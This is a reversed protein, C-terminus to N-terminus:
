SEEQEHIHVKIRKISKQDVAEITFLFQEYSIQDGAAPLQNNIELILGGLSESEGRVADFTNLEIELVKCFEHLSVKGEFVFTTDDIRQYTSRVEDFEDNIDGIIEEIIDEMTILGSTGGYEDVVIAIHVRKEQFDKLLSDIKKTEPVFFGPRLLNQWEYDKDQDMFPLIDKIYLVGEIKDISDRYVPVRSFGSNKIFDLLESFNRSIDVASIDMRSKMVQRVTLTGFNVIGKLIGKEDESTEGNETTLDLAQNLEEVTVQYGKKEIRREIVSSMKLLLFSIPKFIVILAKWLTGVSVAIRMNNKTAYVKPIIEGFFTIFFTVSFTVVGVIFEAPDHTGTLEWMLFTSITVIGLNVLNTVILITALLVRPHALLEPINKDREDASDQCKTLDDPKLSFFAVESASVIASMMLLVAIVIFSMTYILNEGSLITLIIINAPPEEM